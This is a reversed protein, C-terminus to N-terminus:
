SRKLICAVLVYFMTLDLLYNVFKSIIHQHRERGGERGVERNGIVKSLPWQDSRALQWGDLPWNSSVSFWTCILIYLLSTGVVTLDGHWSFLRIISPAQFEATIVHYPKQPSSFYSAFVMWSV